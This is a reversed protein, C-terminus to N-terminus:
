RSTSTPELQHLVQQLAQAIEAPSLELSLRAEYGEAWGYTVTAEPPDLLITPVSRLPGQLRKSLAQRLAEEGDALAAVNILLLGLAERSETLSHLCSWRVGLRRLAGRIKKGFPEMSPYVGVRYGAAESGM